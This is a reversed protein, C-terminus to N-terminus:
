VSRWLQSVAVVEQLEGAPIGFPRVGIRIISILVADADSTAALM